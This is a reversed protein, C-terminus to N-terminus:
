GEFFSPAFGGRRGTLRHLRRAPLPSTPTTVGVGRGGAWLADSRRGPPLAVDMIREAPHPDITMGHLKMRTCGNATLTWDSRFLFKQSETKFDAMTPNRIQYYWRCCTPQTSHLSVWCFRSYDWGLRCFRVHGLISDAGVKSIFKMPPTFQFFHVNFTPHEVNLRNVEVALRFRIRFNM